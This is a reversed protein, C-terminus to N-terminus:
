PKISRAVWYGVLWLIILTLATALVAAALHGLGVAVGIAATLWIGTATTLGRVQTQDQSKLISGACLFGLGAIIGQIVRSMADDSVSHFDPIMVFIASGMCVLMHTRVGAERGKIEREFGLLGGLFAATLLRMFLRLSDELSSGWSLEDLIVKAAQQWMDMM